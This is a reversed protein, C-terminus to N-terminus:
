DVEFRKAETEYAEVLVVDQFLAAVYLLESDFNFQVPEDNTPFLHDGGRDIFLVSIPLKSRVM